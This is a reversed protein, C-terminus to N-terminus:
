FRCRNFKALIQKWEHSIAIFSKDSFVNNSLNKVIESEKGGFGCKDSKKECVAIKKLVALGSIWEVVNM